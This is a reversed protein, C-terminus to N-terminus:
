HSPLVAGFGAPFNVTARGSGNYGSISKRLPDGVDSFSSTDSAGGAVSDFYIVFADDFNSTGRTLTGTLTMGDDSLLLSGSGIAGGFSTNLNGTYTAGFVSASCSLAAALVSINRRHRSSHSKM